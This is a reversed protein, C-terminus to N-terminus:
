AVSLHSVRNLAAHNPNIMRLAAELEEIRAELSRRALMEAANERHTVPQLHAPNVCASNGCMHHAALVGLPKGERVEIVIRHMYLSKAKGGATYQFVPYGGKLRRQWEWCGADNQKVSARLGRLFREYDGDEFGIRIDSRRDTVIKPAALMKSRKAARREAPSPLGERKWLPTERCEKHMPTESQNPRLNALPKHCVSCDVSALPDVGRKKRRLQGAPGIGDREKRSQGYERMRENHGAKCEVCRCGKRYAYQTGHKLPRCRPHSSEGEPKAGGGRSMPENCVHCNPTMSSM